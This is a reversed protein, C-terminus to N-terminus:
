GSGVLVAQSAARLAHGDARARPGTLWRSTGDAAAVRGDLSAAVKAVVFARGTRRHHLYAELADAAEAGGDGVEVEVGAARLAAIGAGAVRADADALACVVRAVGARRLADVCPPTRGHHSCPELSVYATAGRAADGAAALAVVEAHPGGPPATAG